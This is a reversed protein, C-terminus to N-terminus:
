GVEGAALALEHATQIFWNRVCAIDANRRLLGQSNLEGIVTQLSWLYDKVEPMQGALHHTGGRIGDLIASIQEDRGQQEEQRLLASPSLPTTTTM